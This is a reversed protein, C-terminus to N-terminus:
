RSVHMPIITRGHYTIFPPADTPLVGTVTAAERTATVAVQLAELALMRQEAGARDLWGAVLGCARELMARDIPHDAPVDVPQLAALREELVQRRRRLEAGEARVTEDDIEGFTYLRM